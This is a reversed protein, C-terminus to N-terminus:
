SKDEVHYKQSLTGYEANVLREAEAQENLLTYCEPDIKEELVYFYRKTNM